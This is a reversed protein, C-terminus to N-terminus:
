GGELCLVVRGNALSMLQRTMLGFCTPSVNYGGLNEPHGFASDFGCAVLVVSPDFDRAIPMVISRFAALYEADGMASDRWALNWNHGLGNGRGIEEPKGTGPFFAGGDHRHLSIYVVKQDDYFAKQIGNGHHVDWDVILVRKLHFRTTLVKAAIALSNFFCFGTTHDSEAHLGPPRVIAFANLLQGRAVRSVAEVVSGVAVRLAEPTLQENWFTDMDVGQGGCELQMLGPIRLKSLDLDSVRM